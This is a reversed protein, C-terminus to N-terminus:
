PQSSTWIDFNDCGNFSLASRSATHVWNLTCPELVFRDDSYQQVGISQFNTHTNATGMIDNAQYTKEGSYEPSFRPTPGPGGNFTGFPNFNTDTVRTNDVISEECPHNTPPPCNAVFKEYYAHRQDAQISGSTFRDYCDTCTQTNPDYGNVVEAWLYTVENWGAIVGVQSWSTGTYDAIMVWSTTFNTGISYTAPNPSTTDTNCTLPGRNVIFGSAGEFSNTHTTPNHEYGDFYNSPPADCTAGAASASTPVAFMAIGVLLALAAANTSRRLFNM